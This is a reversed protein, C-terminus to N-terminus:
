SVKASSFDASPSQGASSADTSVQCFELYDPRDAVTRHRYERLIRGQYLLFLGPMRLGDGQLGNVKYGVRLLALGRVWTKWGFLQWLRGQRLGFVAYLECSPDSIFPVTELGWKTLTARGLFPDSMHVLVLKVGRAEIQQHVQVLDHLAEQCFTCGLHRLFVLLVPAKASHELLTQGDSTRYYRLAAPLSLSPSQVANGGAYNRFAGYLLLWFPLCWVLNGALLLWGVTWPWGDHWVAWLFGAPQLLDVLFGVLILLWHHYPASSAILYGVGLLGTLLGYMQWVAPHNIPALGTLTFFLQPQIVTFGAWLLSYYGALRLTFVLWPAPM